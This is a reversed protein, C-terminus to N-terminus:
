AFLSVSTVPLYLILYQIQKYFCVSIIIKFLSLILIRLLNTDTWLFM